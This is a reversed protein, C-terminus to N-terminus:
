QRSGSAPVAARPLESALTFSWLAPANAREVKVKALQQGRLLPSQALKAVWDNLAVPEQTFGRVELQAADARVETVWAQAPITQAVLQLRASQGQGPAMFGRRLEAVTNQRELLQARAGALEQGM